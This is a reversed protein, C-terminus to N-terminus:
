KDVQTSDLLQFTGSTQEPEVGILGDPESIAATDSPAPLGPLRLPEDHIPTLNERSSCNFLVMGTILCMCFLQYYKM